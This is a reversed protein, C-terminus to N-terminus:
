SGIWSSFCALLRSAKANGEKVWMNEDGITTDLGSILSTWSGTGIKLKYGYSTANTSSVPSYTGLKTDHKANYSLVFMEITPGGIATAGQANGAFISWKSTDMMYAVAKMNPNDRTKALYTNNVWKLYTNTQENEIITSSNAGNIWPESEMITGIYNNNSSTAFRAQYKTEGESQSQKILENPLTDIPVYDSAILYINKTDDYFLQWKVGEVSTYNTTEGYLTTLNSIKKLNNDGAKIIIKSTDEEGAPIIVEQGHALIKWNQTDSDDVDYDTKFENELEKMLTDYTYSGQGVTLASHYALQIREKIQAEDSKTKADTARQLVGNDGSLM